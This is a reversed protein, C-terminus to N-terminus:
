SAHRRWALTLARVLVCPAVPAEADYSKAIDGAQFDIHLSKGIAACGGLRSVFGEM